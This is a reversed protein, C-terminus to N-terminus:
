IARSAGLRRRSSDSHSSLRRANPDKCNPYGDVSSNEKGLALDLIIKGCRPGQCTEECCDGGDYEFEATNTNEDCISNGPVGRPLTGADASSTGVAGFLGENECDGDFTVTLPEGDRSTWIESFSGSVDFSSTESSSAIGVDFWAECPDNIARGDIDELLYWKQRKGCYSLSANPGNYTYRNFNRSEKDLTYCGSLGTFGENSFTIQPNQTLWRDPSNQANMMAILFGFLIVGASTLVICYGGGNKRQMTAPLNTSGINESVEEKLFRGFVGDKGLSYARDDINSIFNVATFNLIIEIVSTSTLTLLWVTAIGFLAQSGKLICAFRMMWIPDDNKNSCSCRPFFRYAGLLDQVTSDPFVIYVLLSVVQAAKVYGNTNPPILAAFFNDEADPNGSNLVTGWRTDTEGFLM